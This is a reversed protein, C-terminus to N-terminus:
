MKKDASVTGDRRVDEETAGVRTGDGLKRDAQGTTGEVVGLQERAHGAKYNGWKRTPIRLDLHTDYFSLCIALHSCPQSAELKGM